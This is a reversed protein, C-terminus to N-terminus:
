HYLAYGAKNEPFPILISIAVAIVTIAFLFLFCHEYTYEDILWAGIMQGPVAAISRLSATLSLATTQNEKGVIESVVRINVMIFLMSIVSNLLVTIVSQILISRFLIYSLLQLSLLSITGAVIKKCSLKNIISGGFLIIPIEFLSAVFLLMTVRDVYVGMSAFFAPLYLTKTDLAAYFLCIIIFYTALVKKPAHGNISGSKQYHEMGTTSIENVQSMALATLFAGVSFAVYVTHPSVYRYLM